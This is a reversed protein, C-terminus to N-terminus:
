AKAKGKNAKKKKKQPKEPREDGPSPDESPRKRSTNPSDPITGAQLPKDPISISQSPPADPIM